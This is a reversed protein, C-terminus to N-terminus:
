NLRVREATALYVISQCINCVHDGIRELYRLVFLLHSADSIITNNKNMIEIYQRENEFFLEDLKDDDEAIKKALKADSNKFAVITDELMKEAIDSMSSIRSLLPEVDTIGGEVELTVWAINSALDSLRELDIAITLCSTILRMDGAMPQQLTILGSVCKDIIMEHEDVIDDMAITEEALEKDLTLLSTTSNKIMNLSTVAMEVTNSRLIELNRQYKERSM